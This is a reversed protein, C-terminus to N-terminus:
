IGCDLSVVTTSDTTPGLAELEHLMLTPYAAPVKWHDRVAKRQGSEEARRRKTGGLHQRLAEMREEEDYEIGAAKVAERIREEDEPSQAVQPPAVPPPAVAVAAAAAAALSAPLQDLAKSRLEALTSRKPGDLANDAALVAPSM